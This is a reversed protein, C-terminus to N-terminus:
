YGNKIEEWKEMEEQYTKAGMMIGIKRIAAFGTYAEPHGTGLTYAMKFFLKKDVLIKDPEPHFGVVPKVALTPTAEVTVTTQAVGNKSEEKVEELAEKVADEVIQPIDQKM